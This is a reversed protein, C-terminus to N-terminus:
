LGEGGKQLRLSLHFIGTGEAECALRGGLAAITQEQWHADPFDRPKADSETEISLKLAEGRDLLAVFLNRLSPLAAEAATEFLDYFLVAHAPNIAGAAQM